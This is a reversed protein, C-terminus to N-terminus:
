HPRNPLYLQLAHITLNWKYVQHFRAYRLWVRQM